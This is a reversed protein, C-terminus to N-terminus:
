DRKKKAPIGRYELRVRIENAGETTASVEYRHGSLGRNELSQGSITLKMAGPSGIVFGNGVKFGNTSYFWTKLPRDPDFTVADSVAPDEWDRSEDEYTGEWPGGAVEVVVKM